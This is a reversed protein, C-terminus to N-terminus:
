GKIVLPYKRRIANIKFKKQLTFSDPHLLEFETNWEKFVLPEANKFLELSINKSILYEEFNM